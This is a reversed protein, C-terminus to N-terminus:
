HLGILLGFSVAFSRDNGPSISYSPEVFLGYKREPSQWFMFDAVFTTGVKGNEGTAKSWMPGLGIMMETTESLTFPKRFVVENEFESRGRRFLKAGGVEIELWDKIANFEVAATPGFSSSGGPFGWETSAGLMVVALPDKDKEAGAASAIPALVAAALVLFALSPKM